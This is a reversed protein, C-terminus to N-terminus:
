RLDGRFIYRILCFNNTVELKIWTFGETPNLRVKGRGLQKLREGAIVNWNYRNILKQKGLSLNIISDELENTQGIITKECSGVNNKTFYNM